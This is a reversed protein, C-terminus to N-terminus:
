VNVLKYKAFVLCDYNHLLTPNSSYCILEFDKELMEKLLKETLDEWVIKYEVIKRKQYIM